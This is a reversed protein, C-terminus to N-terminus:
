FGMGNQQPGTNGGGPPYNNPRDPQEIKRYDVIENVLKPSRPRGTPPTLDKLERQIVTIGLPLNSLDMITRIRLKGVAHCLASLRAQARAKTNSDHNGLNIRDLVQRGKWAGDMVEFSLEIHSGTGNRNQREQAKTLVVRYDGAPIPQFGGMSPAIGSADFDFIM